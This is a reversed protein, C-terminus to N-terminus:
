GSLLVFPWLGTKRESANALGVQALEQRLLAVAAPSDLFRFSTNPM